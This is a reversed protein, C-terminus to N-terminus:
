LADFCKNHTTPFIFLGWHMDAVMRGKFGWLFTEVRVAIAYGLHYQKWYHKSSPSKTYNNVRYSKFRKLYWWSIKISALHPWSSPLLIINKIHTNILSSTATNIQQLSNSTNPIQSYRDNSNNTNTNEHKNDKISIWSSFPQMGNCQLVRSTIQRRQDHELIIHFLRM